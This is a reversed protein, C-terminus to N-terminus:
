QGRLQADLLAVMKEDLTWLQNGIRDGIEDIQAKVSASVRRWDRHRYLGDRRLLDFGLAFDEALQAEGLKRLGEILVKLERPGFLQEFICSFGCIDKECRASYVVYVIQEAFPRSWVQEHGLSLLYNWVENIRDFADM